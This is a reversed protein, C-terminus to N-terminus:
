FKPRFGSRVVARMPWDVTQAVVLFIKAEFDSARIHNTSIQNSMPLHDTLAPKMAPRRLTPPYDIPTPTEGVLQLVGELSKFTRSGYSTGYVYMLDLQDNEPESESSSSQSLSYTRDDDYDYAYMENGNENLGYRAADASALFVTKNKGFCRPKQRSTSSFSSAESHKAKCDRAFHDVNGCRFCTVQDMDVKNICLVHEEMEDLEDETNQSWISQTRIPIM